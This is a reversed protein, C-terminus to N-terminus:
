KDSSNPQAGFKQQPQLKNDFPTKFTSKGSLHSEAYRCEKNTKTEYDCSKGDWYNCQGISPSSFTRQRKAAQNREFNVGFQFIEQNSEQSKATLAKHSEHETHDDDLSQVDTRVATKLAETVELFDAKNDICTIVLARFRHMAASNQSIRQLLIRSKQAEGYFQIETDFLAGTSGDAQTKYFWAIFKEFLNELQDMLMLLQSSTHAVGVKAILEDAQTKRVHPEDFYLRDQLALIAKLAGYFDSKFPRATQAQLRAVHPASIETMLALAKASQADIREKRVDEDSVQKRMKGSKERIEDTMPDTSELQLLRTTLDTKVQASMPKVQTTGLVQACNSSKCRLLVEEKWEMYCGGTDKQSKGLMLFSIEASFKNHEWNRPIIEKITSM